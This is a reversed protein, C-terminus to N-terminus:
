DESLREILLKQTDRLAEPTGIELYPKTVVLAEMQGIEILYQFFSELDYVIKKPIQFVHDATLRLMGYDVHTWPACLAQRKSYGVVMGGSIKVNPSENVKRSDIVAMQCHQRRHNSTFFHNVDFDLLTDGYTLLFEDRLVGKDLANRLAGGTGLSTQGDHVFVIQMGWKEGNGIYKEIKQGRYGICYVVEKVGQLQLWQLQYDAFPRGNVPALHKPFDMEPSLLRTGLGGALIVCQM